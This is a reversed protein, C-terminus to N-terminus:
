PSWCSPSSLLLASGSHTRPSPHSSKPDPLTLASPITGAQDVDCNHNAATRAVTHPLASLLDRTVVHVNTSFRLMLQNGCRQCMCADERCRCAHHPPKCRTTSAHTPTPFPTLQVFELYPLSNRPMGQSSVCSYASHTWHNAVSCQMHIHLGARLTLLLCIHTMPNLDPGPAFSMMAAHHPAFCLITQSCTYGAM